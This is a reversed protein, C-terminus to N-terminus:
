PIEGDIQDDSFLDVSYNYIVFLPMISVLFVIIFIIFYKASIKNKLMKLFIIHMLAPSKDAL